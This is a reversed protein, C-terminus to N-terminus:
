NDQRGSLEKLMAAPDFSVFGLAYSAGGGYWEVIQEETNAPTTSCSAQTRTPDPFYISV